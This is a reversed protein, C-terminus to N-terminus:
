IDAERHGPEPFPHDVTYHGSGEPSNVPQFSAESCLASLSPEEHAWQIFQHASHLAFIPCRFGSRGTRERVAGKGFGSLGGSDGSGKEAKFPWESPTASKPVHNSLPIIM